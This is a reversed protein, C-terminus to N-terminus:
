KRKKHALHSLKTSSTNPFSDRLSGKLGRLKAMAALEAERFENPDQLRDRATVWARQIWWSISRQSDKSLERIEKAIAEPLSISFKM